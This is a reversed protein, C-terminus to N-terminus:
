ADYKPVALKIFDIGEEVLEEEEAPTTPGRISRPPAEGSHMKKAEGSFSSGVDEFNKEVFEGLERYYSRIEGANHTPVKPADGRNKPTHIAVASLLKRIKSSDCIPCHIQGEKLQKEYDERNRFWGEFKHDKECSLEFTIM